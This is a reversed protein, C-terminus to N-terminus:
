FYRNISFNSGIFKTKFQLAYITAGWSYSCTNYSNYM